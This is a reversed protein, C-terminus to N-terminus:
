FNVLSPQFKKQFMLSKTPSNRDHSSINRNIVRRSQILMCTIRTTAAVALRDKSTLIYSQSRMKSRVPNKISSIWYVTLSILANMIRKTKDIKTKPTGKIIM